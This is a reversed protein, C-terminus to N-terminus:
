YNFSNRNICQEGIRTKERIIVGHGTRFDDGIIVDDYIITNSRIFANEGTVPSESNKKYKLGINVNEHIISNKLM